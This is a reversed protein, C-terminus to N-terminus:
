VHARGIQGINLTALSKVLDEVSAGLDILAALIMDGSAGGVMDFHVAKM